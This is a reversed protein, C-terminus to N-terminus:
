IESPPQPGGKKNDAIHKLIEGAAFFGFTATLHTASGYGADCRLGPPLNAPRSFPLACTQVGTVDYYRIGAEAQFFFVDEEFVM